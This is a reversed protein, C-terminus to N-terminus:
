TTPNPPSKTKGKECSQQQYNQQAILNPIRGVFELFFKKLLFDELLLCIEMKWRFQKFLFKNGKGKEEHTDM